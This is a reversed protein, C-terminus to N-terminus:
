VMWVESDKPGRAEVPLRVVAETGDGSAPRLTVTGSHLEVIKRVVALGLGTGKSKKSSMPKFLSDVEEPDIGSGTDRVVIEISEKDEDDRDVNRTKLRLFGSAPMVDLANVILNLFARMLCNSDAKVKPLQDEFERVISVGQTAARTEMLSVAEELAENVDTEMLELKPERILGSTHTVTESLTSISSELQDTIAVLKEQGPLDALAKKLRTASLMMGSLPTKLEHALTAAMEGIALITETGRWRDECERAFRSLVKQRWISDFAEGIKLGLKELFEIRESSFRDPQHCYIQILGVVRDAARLPILAVSEYGQAIGLGDKELYSLSKGYKDLLLNMSNTWFSGKETFFPLSRDARERLVIGFIGKLLCREKEDRVIRGADDRICLSKESEILDEEFGKSALFPYDDKGDYVRLSVAECDTIRSVEEVIVSSAESFENIGCLSELIKL